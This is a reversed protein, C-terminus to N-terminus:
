RSINISNNNINDKIMIMIKKGTAKIEIWCERIFDFSWVDNYIKEDLGKGHTIVFANRFSNSPPQDNGYVMGYRGPPHPDAETRVLMPKRWSRQNLNFIWTDSLIRNDVTRGGFIIIEDQDTSYGIAYDKREEPLDDGVNSVVDVKEWKFGPIRINDAYVLSIYVSIFLIIFKLNLSNKKM